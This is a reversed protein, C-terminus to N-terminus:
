FVKLTGLKLTAGGVVLGLKLIGFVPLRGPEFPVVLSILGFIGLKLIGLRFTGSRVLGFRFIGSRLTPLPFNTGLGPLFTTRGRGPFFLTNLGPFPVNTGLGPLPFRIGGTLPIELSSRNPLGPFLGPLLLRTGPVMSREFSLPKDLPFPLGFLLNGLEFLHSPLFPTGRLLSRNLPLFMLGMLM